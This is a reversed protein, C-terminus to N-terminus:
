ERLVTGGSALRVSPRYIRNSRSLKLEIAPMAAGRGRGKKRKRIIWQAPAATQPPRRDAPSTTLEERALHSRM